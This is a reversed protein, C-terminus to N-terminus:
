ETLIGVNGGRASKGRDVGEGFVFVSLQQERVSRQQQVIAVQSGMDM